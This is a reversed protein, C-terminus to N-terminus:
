GYRHPVHSRGDKGDDYFGNDMYFDDAYVEAEKGRRRGDHLCVFNMNFNEALNMRGYREAGDEEETTLIRKM